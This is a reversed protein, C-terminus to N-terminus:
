IGGDLDIGVDSLLDLGIRQHDPDRLSLPALAVLAARLQSAELTVRVPGVAVPNGRILEQLDALDITYTEM